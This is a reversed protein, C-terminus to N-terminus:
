LITNDPGWSPAADATDGGTLERYQNGDTDLTAINTASDKSAASCVFKGNDRDLCLDALDLHQRHLIRTEVGSDLDFSFLGGIGEDRLFYFLKNDHFQASTVQIQGGDTAFQRMQGSASVNFSTGNKWAHREKSREIRDAIQQVYPSHLQTLTGGAERYFLNGNAFYAVGIGSEAASTSSGFVPAAEKPPQTVAYFWAILVLLLVIGFIVIM